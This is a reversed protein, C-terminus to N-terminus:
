QSCVVAQMYITTCHCVLGGMYIRLCLDIGMNCHYIFVLMVVLITSAVLKHRGMINEM